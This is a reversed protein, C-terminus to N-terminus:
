RPGERPRLRRKPTSLTSTDPGAGHLGKKQLNLGPADEAPPAYREADDATMVFSIESKRPDTRGSGKAM